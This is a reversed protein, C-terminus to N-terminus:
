RKLNRLTADWELLTKVASKSDKFWSDHMTFSYLWAKVTIFCAGTSKGSKILKRDFETILGCIENKSILHPKDGVLTMGKEDLTIAHYDRSIRRANKLCLYKMFVPYFLFSLLAFAILLVGSAVWWQAVVLVMTLVGAGGLLMFKQSAEASALKLSKEMFEDKLQPIFELTVPGFKELVNLKFELVPQFNEAGTEPDYVCVAQKLKQCINLIALTDADGSQLPEGIEGSIFSKSGGLIEKGHAKLAAACHKIMSISDERFKDSDCCDREQNGLRHLIDDFNWLSHMGRKTFLFYNICCHEDRAWGMFYPENIKLYVDKSVAYLGDNEYLLHFGYDEHLFAYEKEIIDQFDSM